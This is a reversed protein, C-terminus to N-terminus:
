GAVENQFQVASELGAFSGVYKWSSDERIRVEWKKRFRNFTVGPVGSGPIKSQAFKANEQRNRYRCRESCWKSDSRCAWFKRRCWDCPRRKAPM